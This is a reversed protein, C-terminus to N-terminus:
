AVQAATSTITWNEFAKPTECFYPVVEVQPLYAIM